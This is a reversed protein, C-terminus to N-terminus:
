HCGIVRRAIDAPGYRFAAASSQRRAGTYGTRATAAAAAAEAALAAAVAAAVVVAATATAAPPRLVTGSVSVSPAGSVMAEWAAAATGSQRSSCATL